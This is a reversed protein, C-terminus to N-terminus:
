NRKYITNIAVNNIKIELFKEYNKPKKFKHNIKNGLWNRYHNIIYNAENINNTINIKSRYKKELFSRSIILDTTGVAYVNVIEKEKIAIEKLANVNSLGWYDMDFYKNFDKGVFKNFYINQYPHNKIMWFITPTLFLFFLIIFTKQYIKFFKIKILRLAYISIMLFSPYIFYLHRWGDYLTSNFSLIYILPAVFTALIILDFFENKGRWLDNYSETEDYKSVRNVIRKISFFLGLFFLFVYFIPTTIFIWVFLYHWPLNKANIYNGMYFNFVNVDFNSLTQFAAIFNLFPSQWLYPWFLVILLPTLFVFLLFPKVAIEKFNKVHLFNILYFFIFLVPLIIGTIRIDIALASVLSFFFSSKLSPKNVFNIGVYIGIIYLSMFIIDKNNFFSHAFIRPSLILLISGALAFIYSKYRKKILLYFFYVSVFFFLFNVFHRLLYYNRSDKINFLWELFATPIDFIPGISWEKWDSIHPTIIINDISAQFDPSFIQFIYKLSVFGGLRTNDEDISIGYDPYILFGFTFFVVFFLFVLLNEKFKLHSLM